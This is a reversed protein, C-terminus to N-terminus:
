VTPWRRGLPPRIRSRRAAARDTRANKSEIELRVGQRSNAGPGLHSSPEPLPRTYAHIAVAEPYPWVPLRVVVPQPKVLSSHVVWHLPEAVILDKAEDLDRLIPIRLQTVLGIALSQEVVVGEAIKAPEEVHHQLPELGCSLRDSVGRRGQPSA